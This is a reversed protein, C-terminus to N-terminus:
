MCGNIMKAMWINDKTNLTWTENIHLMGSRVYEEYLRGKVFYSFCKM